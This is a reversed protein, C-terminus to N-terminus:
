PDTDTIHYSRGALGSAPLSETCDYVLRPGPYSGNIRTLLSVPALGTCDGRSHPLRLLSVDNAWPSLLHKPPLLRTLLGAVALKDTNGPHPALTGTLPM